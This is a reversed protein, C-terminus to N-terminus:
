ATGAPGASPSGPVAALSSVMVSQSGTELCGSNLSAAQRSSATPLRRFALAPHTLMAAFRVAILARAFLWYRHARVGAQVVGEPLGVFGLVVEDAVEEVQGLLVAGIVLHVM